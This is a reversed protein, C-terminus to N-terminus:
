WSRPNYIAKLADPLYDRAWIDLAEGAIHYPGISQRMVIHVEGRLSTPWPESYVAVDHAVLGTGKIPVLTLVLYASVTRDMAAVQEPTLVLNPIM